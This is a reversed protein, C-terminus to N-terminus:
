ACVCTSHEPRRPRTLFLDDSFFRLACRHRRSCPDIDESDRACTGKPTVEVEDGGLGPPKLQRLNVRVCVRVRACVCVPVCACVCVHVCVGIKEEENDDQAGVDGDTPDFVVRM